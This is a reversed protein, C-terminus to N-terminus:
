MLTILESISLIRPLDKPTFLCNEVYHYSKESHSLKNCRLYKALILHLLL